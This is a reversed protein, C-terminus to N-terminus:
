IVLVKWKFKFKGDIHPLLVAIRGGPTVTMGKIWDAREEHIQTSRVFKGDKTFIEVFVVPEEKKSTEGAMVVYESLMHFAAIRPFYRGRPKFKDLCYVDESFIHVCFDRWDVVMVRGDNTVSIDWPEKLTGEGFSRVFLGDTDYVDVSFRRLVLVQSNIVTLGRAWDEGMVPFNHQLDATNKFEYVVFEKSGAKKM